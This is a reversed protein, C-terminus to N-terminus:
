AHMHGPATSAYPLGTRETIPLADMDGRLVLVPGPQGGPIEAVIGTGGVGTRHTIGLERLAHSVAAATRTEQFALEPHAHLDRRFAILRDALAEARAALGAAPDNRLSM